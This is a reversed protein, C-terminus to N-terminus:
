FSDQIIFNNQTNKAETYLFIFCKSGWVSIYPQESKLHKTGGKGVTIM